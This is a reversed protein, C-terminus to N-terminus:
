AIGAARAADDAATPGLQLRLLLMGDLVAMVRLAEARTTSDGEALVRPEVWSAWADIIMPSLTAFPEVGAGGLGVLEFFTRFVPDNAETAMIPWARALLDDAALPEEGFAAGLVEQIGAGIAAITESVLAAKTPFYYVISRDNIGIRKALRGFTLQSLGDDRVAQVAAALIEDKDYKYGM